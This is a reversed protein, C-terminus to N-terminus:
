LCHFRHARVLVLIREAEQFPPTELTLREVPQQYEREYAEVEKEQLKM